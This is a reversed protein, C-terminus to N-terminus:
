EKLIQGSYFESWLLYNCANEISLSYLLCEEAMMKLGKLNYKEGIKLMELAMKDMNPSKRYVFLIDYVVKDSSALIFKHANIELDRVKIVCDSFKKSGFMSAVDRLLLDVSDNGNNNSLLNVTSKGSCYDFIECGVKLNGNHLLESDSSLLLDHKLFDYCVCFVDVNLVYFSFLATLEICDVDKLKLLLSIYNEQDSGDKNLNM